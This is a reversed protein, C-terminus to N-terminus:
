ASRRSFGTVRSVVFKADIGDAADYTSLSAIADNGTLIQSWADVLENWASNYRGTARKRRFERASDPLSDGSWDLWVTPELVLWLRNMRYDLTVRVAETWKVDGISGCVSKAARKLPRLM